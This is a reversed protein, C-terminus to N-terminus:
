SKATLIGAFQDRTLRYTEWNDLHTAGLRRYFRKALENWDLVMWEMRGCGRRDAEAVCQRFLEYGAGAGRSDPMVFIDELFLTPLALFTSYTELLFAYGVVESDLEALFVDFRPKPAFADAILRAQAEPSPPDLKEYHALAEVLRLINASDDPVARRVIVKKTNAM